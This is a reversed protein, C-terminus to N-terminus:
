FPGLILGRWKNLIYHLMWIWMDKACLTDCKGFLKVQCSRPYLGCEAFMKKKKMNYKEYCAGTTFLHNTLFCSHIKKFAFKPFHHMKIFSFWVTIPLYSLLFKYTIIIGVPLNCQATAAKTEVYKSGARINIRSM